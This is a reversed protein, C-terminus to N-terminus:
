IAPMAPLDLSGKGATIYTRLAKRYNTWISKTAAVSAETDTGSYDEDDIQQQLATIKASARDYESQAKQLNIAAQEEPTVVIVPAAFAWNGNSDQSASYGIGVIDGEKMEYTIFDDFIDGTGDWAVTNEVVGDKILAYSGM